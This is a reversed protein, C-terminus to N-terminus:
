QGFEKYLFTVVQARTCNGKPGFTTESTGSTIGNELAWLVAKYYYRGPRVDTFPCTTSVPEPRGASVWLFTVVQARTCVENPAFSTETAGSTIGKEYAWLVAKYYYRGPKVDTFPNEQITPEPKGFIVWLFSVFQARTVTEQPGFSTPTMGSTIHNVVAWDIPLHSYHGVPPMDTFRGGPCESGGECHIPPITVDKRQTEFPANEFVALYYGSGAESLTSPKSLFFETTVTTQQVHMPNHVCPISGTVTSCDEAWDYYPAGWEHDIMNIVVDEDPMTLTYGYRDEAFEGASALFGPEADKPDGVFRPTLKVTEGVGAYFVGNFVLGVPYADLGATEYTKKSGFDLTINEGPLVAWGRCGQTDSGETRYYSNAFSLSAGAEMHAFNSTNNWEVVEPAFLCDRITLAGRAFGVMGGCFSVYRGLLKGATVCGVLTVDSGEAAAAILGGCYGQGPLRSTITLDSRCNELIVAGIANACVAAAYKNSSTIQGSVRLNRITADRAYQFPACNEPAEDARFELTFGGGDYVGRFCADAGILVRNSGILSDSGEGLNMAIVLVTQQGICETPIEAEFGHDIGAAPAIGSMDPVPRDAALEHLENGIWVQVTLAAEPEDPDYAWGSVTVSDEGGTIRTTIGLPNHSGQLANGPEAPGEAPEPDEIGIMDADTISIDAIQRFYMGATSNGEHVFRRLELWDERCAILFPAGPSGDGDLDPKAESVALNLGKLSILARAWTGDDRDVRVLYCGNWGALWREAGLKGLDNSFVGESFICASSRENAAPTYSSILYPAETLEAAAAVSDGAENVFDLDERTLGPAESVAGISTVDNFWDVYVTGVGSNSSLDNARVRVVGNETFTYDFYWFNEDVQILKPETSASLTEGNFLVEKLGSEDLIYCTMPVSEGIELSATQPFSRNWLVKPSTPDGDVVTNTKYEPIYRDIMTLKKARVTINLLNGYENDLEVKFPSESSSFTGIVTNGKRVTVSIEGMFFFTLTDALTEFSFYAGEAGAQSLDYNMPIENEEGGTWGNSSLLNLFVWDPSDADTPSLDTLSGDANYFTFSADDRFINVGDAMSGVQYTVAYVSNTARDMVQLIGTPTEGAELLEQATSNPAAVVARHAADYYCLGMRPTWGETGDTIETVVIDPNASTSYFTVPLRLTTGLATNIHSPMTFCTEHKFIKEYGNDSGNYENHDFSYKGDDYHPSDFDSYLEARLHLGSYAEGEVFCSVPVCLSGTVLRYNGPDLDKGDGEDRLQYVGISYNEETIPQRTEIPKQFDTSLESGTINIPKYEPNGFDDTSGTGYSFQLFVSGAKASGLNQVNAKIDLYAIGDKVSTLSADFSGFSLDPRDEVSMLGDLYGTFPDDVYRGNEQVMLFFTKDAPITSELPLGTFTLRVPTGAPISTILDWRAILVSNQVNQSNEGVRLEVAAPYDKSARIAATGTNTFSVEGVLTSGASFDTNSFGLSGEGIAQEGAGFAIAYFRVEAEATPIMATYDERGAGMEFTAEALPVFSGETLVILRSSTTEGQVVSQAAIQLNSFTLKDPSGTNGGPTQASGIYCQEADEPSMDYAIRDEYIQLNRIALIVPTGWADLNKDWWAAYLANSQSNAVPATYVALLNGNDDAGICVETGTTESFVPILTVSANANVAVAKLDAEGILYTNGGMEFLALTQLGNTDIAARVFRLNSYYPDAQAKVLTSNAYIGDKLRASALNSDSCGDFDMVTQLLKPSGFGKGDLMCLWLMRVVARDTNKSISKQGVTLPTAPEMDFYAADTTSCLVFTKGDLTVADLNEIQGDLEVSKGTSTKLVTKSGNLENMRSQAAWFFVTGALNPVSVAYHGDADPVLMSEELKDNRALLWAKLMANAADGSGSAEAWFVSDGMVTPLNLFRDSAQVIEVDGANGASFDFSRRRLEYSTGKANANTIWAVTLVSGDATLDFDLDMFADNDLILYGDENEGNLPHVFGTGSGNLNGTMVLRSLVLQPSGGIMQQYVVYTEDGVQAMKYTYGTSLGWALLKADGATNYGSLEFDTTGTPSLSRTDTDNPRMIGQTATIDRPGSMHVLSGNATSCVPESASHTGNDTKPVCWRDLKTNETKATIRLQTSGSGSFNLHAPSTKYNTTKGSASDWVDIEGKFFLDIKPETTSFTVYAGKKNAVALDDNLPKEGNYLGGGWWKNPSVKKKFAWGEGSGANESVNTKTGNPNYFTFGSEDKFINTGYAETPEALDKADATTYTTKSWLEEAGNALSASIDWNFYGGTGHQEGEVGFAVVDMSYNVFLVTVNFGLAIEWEFKSIYFGEYSDIEEYYGGMTMTIAINTKLFIEFKLVEVGVGAGVELSLAPTISLGDFVTKSEAKLVPKLNHIEPWSDGRAELQVYVTKNYAELLVEKQSGDGSLGGTALPKGSLLENDYVRMYVTGNLDVHFGRAGLVGDGEERMDLEFVLSRCRGEQLQQPTGQLFSTIEDGEVAIRHVSLSMAAKVEAGFKLYVYFVPCAPLRAQVTVEFGLTASVGATKFYYGDDIPNYEFMIALQVSFTVGVKRMNSNGKKANKFSDDDAISGKMFEALQKSDCKSVAKFFEGLTEMQENSKVFNSKKNEDNQADSPTTPANTTMEKRTGTWGGNEKTEEIVERRYTKKGQSDVAQTVITKTRKNPDNPDPVTEMHTTRKGDASVVDRIQTDGDTRDTITSGDMATSHEESGTYSDSEKKFVPFGVTFGIQYGDVVISAYDGLPLELSPLETGLNPSFEKMDMAGGPGEGSAEGADSNGGLQNLSDPSPTTRLSPLTINEPDIDAQTMTGDETFSAPQQQVGIALGSRGIFSALYANINSRGQESYTFIGDSGCDVTEGALEVAAGTINDTDTVPTPNEFPVLLRGVFEPEWTYVTETKCVKKDPDDKDPVIEELLHMTVTGVDGGLPIDVHNPVNADPGYMIKDNMDLGRIWRYSRQEETLASAAEENTVASFVGPLIQAKDNESAGSPMVLARPRMTYNVRLYYQHVVNKEDKVPKFRSDPYEGQVTCIFVDGEDPTFYGDEDFEGNIGLTEENEGDYNGDYWLEIQTVTVLMPSVADLFDKNYYHFILPEQRFDTERLVIDEDGAYAKGNLLIVDEHDLHFNVSQLNVDGTGSSLRFMGKQMTDVRFDSYDWEISQINDGYVSASGNNSSSEQVYTVSPKNDFMSRFTEDYKAAMDEASNEVVSPAVDIEITQRRDYIVNLYLAKNLDDEDMGDWVLSVYFVFYGDEENRYEVQGVRVGDQNTLFVNEQKVSFSGSAPVQVKLQSGAYLMGEYVVVNDSDGDVIMLPKTVGSSGPVLTVKPALTGYLRSGPKIATYGEGGLENADNATYITLGIGDETSQFVRRTGTLDRVYMNSDHNMLGKARQTLGNSTDDYWTYMHYLNIQMTLDDGMNIGVSQAKSTEFPTFPGNVSGEQTATQNITGLSSNSKTYVALNRSELWLTSNSYKEFNFEFTTNNNGVRYILHPWLYRHSTLVSGHPLTNKDLLGVSDWDVEFRYDQFYYGYNAKFTDDRHLNVIGGWNTQFKFLHFPGYEIDGLTCDVDGPGLGSVYRDNIFDFDIAYEDAVFGQSTNKVDAEGGLLAETDDWYNSGDYNEISNRTFKYKGEVTHSRTDSSIVLEASLKEPAEMEVNGQLVKGSGLLADEAVTVNGAAEEFDSGSLLTALNRGSGDAEPAPSAGTLVVTIERTTLECLKKEGGGQLETLRLQFSREEATDSDILEVPIEIENVSGAFALEGSAAAYDVGAKATGDVTEYRVTVSYSKDGERRVPIRAAKDARDVTVAEAPFGLTSPGAEDNDSVMLTLTNCTGSLEGGECGTITFLALEPLESIEDDLATVRIYKVSEGEAFTLDFEYLGFREDAELVSYGPDSELDLNEPMPEPAPIPEYVEGMLSESCFARGNVFYVCRLDVGSWAGNEFDWLLEWGAELEAKDCLESDLPVTGTEAKEDEGSGSLRKLDQWAGDKKAQWRYDEADVTESLGLTLVGGAAPEGADTMRVGVAGPQMERQWRPLGVTQWAAIPSPNEFEIRLDDLASAAYDYVYDLGDADTTIAPAYTIKATVRGTSGGLRYVPILISQPLAEGDGTKAGPEGVDAQYNGFAFTGYPFAENWDEEVSIEGEPSQLTEPLETQQSIRTQALSQGRPEAWVQLPLVSALMCLCLLLALLRQATHSSQRETM